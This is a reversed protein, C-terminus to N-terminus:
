GMAETMERVYRYIPAGAAAGHQAAIRVIASGVIVGDALRAIEAAQAPSHIGFGVAVPLETVSKVAGIMSALDTKIESRIGTVGM